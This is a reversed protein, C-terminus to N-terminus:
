TILGAKYLLEEIAARYELATDRVDKKKANYHIRHASFNGLKRFNDLCDRTNRSLGLPTCTKAHAIIANLQKFEGSSDKISSDIGLNQYALILMVELLRRMLVACGDFVNHEYSANIQKALNEIYGRTGSYLSSPIISDVSVVEENEEDFQIFETEFKRIQEAHLKFSDKQTARVITKSAILRKKLRSTNPKALGLLDFWRCIDPLSFASVNSSKLYYFALREVKEVETKSLLGSVTVFETLQMIKIKSTRGNLQM